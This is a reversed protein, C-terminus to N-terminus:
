KKDEEVITEDDADEAPATRSFSAAILSMEFLLYTPLGMLVQSFIDPPTLIASVVFISVFVLARMGKLREITMIGAKVLFFVLAPLQFVIGFGFILMGVLSTFQAIGITPQLYPTQFGISFTMVMPLIAFLAFAAGLAFLLCSFFLLGAAPKKESKHLGPAVFSWIQRLIYPAGVILAMYMAIKLKVFLPEVPSFYSLKLEAPCFHEILNAMLWDSLYFGVPFLIALCIVMRIIVWRLEDLHEVFSGSKEDGALM